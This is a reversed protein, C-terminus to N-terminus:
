LIIDNETIKSTLIRRQSCFHIFHSSLIRMGSFPLALRLDVTVLFPSWDVPGFGRLIFKKFSSRGKSVGDQDACSRSLRYNDIDTCPNHPAFTYGCLTTKRKRNSYFKIIIITCKVWRILDDVWVSWVAMCAPAPRSALLQRPSQADEATSARSPARQLIWKTLALQFILSQGNISFCTWISVM